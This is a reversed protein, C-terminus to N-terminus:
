LNEKNYIKELPGSIIRNIDTYMTSLREEAEILQKIEPNANLQEFLKNAEELEAAELQLGQMQKQQLEVQSGRFEEILKKNEPDTMVKSTLLKVKIYNEDEEILKVLEHAKDYPNPM